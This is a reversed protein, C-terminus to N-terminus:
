NTKKKKIQKLKKVCDSKIESLYIQKINISNTMYRYECIAFLGDNRKVIEYEIRM